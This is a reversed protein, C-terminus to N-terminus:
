AESKILALLTTSEVRSLVIGEHSSRHVHKRGHHLHKVLSHRSLKNRRPVGGVSSGIGGGEGLGWGFICIISNM